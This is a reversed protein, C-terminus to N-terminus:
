QLSGKSLSHPDAYNYEDRRSRGRGVNTLITEVQRDHLKWIGYGKQYGAKNISKGYDTVYHAYRHCFEKDDFFIQNRKMSEKIGSITEEAVNQDTVCPKVPCLELEGEGTYCVPGEGAKNHAIKPM